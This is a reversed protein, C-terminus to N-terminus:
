DNDASPSRLQNAPGQGALTVVDFADTFPLSYIISGKGDEVDIRYRLDMRGQRLDHSLTDRAAAMAALRVAGLTPLEIGDPDLLEEVDDRLHFYYRPM